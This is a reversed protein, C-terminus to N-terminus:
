SLKQTNYPIEFSEIVSIYILTYGQTGLDKWADNCLIIQQARKM